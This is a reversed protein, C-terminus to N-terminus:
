RTYFFPWGISVNRSQSTDCELTLQASQATEKEDDNGKYKGGNLTLSFQAGGLMITTLMGMIGIGDEKRSQTLDQNTDTAKFQPNLKDKGGFDGAVNKVTM